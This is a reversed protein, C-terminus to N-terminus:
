DIYEFEKKQLLTYNYGFIFWGYRVVYVELTSYAQCKSIVKIKTGITLGHFGYSVVIAKKM